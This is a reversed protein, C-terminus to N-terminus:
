AAEGDGKDTRTLGGSQRQEQPQQRRHRRRGHRYGRGAPAARRIHVVKGSVLAVVPAQHRNVADQLTRLLDAEEADSEDEEDEEMDAHLEDAGVDSWDAEDRLQALWSELVAREHESDLSKGGVKMTSLEEDVSESGERERGDAGSARQSAPEWRWRAHSEGFAVESTASWGTRGLTARQLEGLIATRGLTLQGQLYPVHRTTAMTWQRLAYGSARQSEQRLLARVVAALSSM